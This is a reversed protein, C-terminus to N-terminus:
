FRVAANFLIRSGTKGSDNNPTGRLEQAFEIGGTVRQLLAIRVGFGTSLLSRRNVTGPLIALEDHLPRVKAADFFLYFQSTDLRYQPFHADYRLESALGIGIDAALSAPDYGRGIGSGGFSTQEGIVLREGTYQGLAHFNASVPGSIPQDHQAVLTFKTFGTSAGETMAAPKTSEAGLIPLGQTVGFTAATTSEHILGNQQVTVAVDAERWHDDNIVPSAVGALLGASQGAQTVRAAQVTLGGEVSVRTPRTVIVPYSLRAGFAYSDSVLNGGAAAPVGHALVGTATFIMGDDGVPRAYKGQVLSRQSLDPTGSVDFTVQGPVYRLSNAVLQYGLTVPGTIAAGRNDSYITAEWPQGALNVLLDSAGPDTPSPRLLGSATTGPLDNALLLGREMAGLTAPREQTVPEIYAEVRERALEGGGSVAAAKVFGEVVNIQFVGNSVTQPPVFARTLVFGRQRYMTEIKDAIDIIDSLKAKQGILPATLPTFDDPKFVTAGVVKIGTVDFEIVDVARPIPGRQPAPISFDFQPSLSPAPPPLNRGPEAQGPFPQLTAQGLVTAPRCLEVAALTLALAM